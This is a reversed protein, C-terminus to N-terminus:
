SSLLTVANCLYSKCTNGGLAENGDRAGSLRVPQLFIPRGSVNRKALFLLGLHSVNNVTCLRVPVSVTLSVLFQDTV